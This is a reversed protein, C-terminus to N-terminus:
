QCGFLINLGLSSLFMRKVCKLQSSFPVFFIVINKQDLMAVM